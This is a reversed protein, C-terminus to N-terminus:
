VISMYILMTKGLHDDVLGFDFHVECLEEVTLMEPLEEARGTLYEERYKYYYVTYSFYNYDTVLIIVLIFEKINMERKRKGNIIQNTVADEEDTWVIGFM